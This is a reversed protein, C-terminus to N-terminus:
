CEHKQPIKNEWSHKGHGFFLFYQQMKNLCISPFGTGGSVNEPTHAPSKWLALFSFITWNGNDMIITTSSSSAVFCVSCFRVGEKLCFAPSSSQRLKSDGNSQHKTVQKKWNIHCWQTLNWQTITLKATSNIGTGTLKETHEKGSGSMHQYHFRCSHLAKVFLIFKYDSMFGNWTKFNPERTDKVSFDNLWDLQSNVSVLSNGAINVIHNIFHFSRFGIQRQYSYLCLLLFTSVRHQRRLRLPLHCNLQKTRVLKFGPFSWIEELAFLWSNLNDTAKNTKNIWRNEICVRRQMLDAHVLSKRMRPGFTLHRYFCGM